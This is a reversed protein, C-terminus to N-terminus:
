GVTSWRTPPRRGDSKYWRYFHADTPRCRAVRLRARPLACALPGRHVARHRLLLSTLARAAPCLLRLPPARERVWQPPEFAAVRAGGRRGRQSQHICVTLRAPHTLAEGFSHGVRCLKVKLALSEGCSFVSGFGGKTLYKLSAYGREELVEQVAAPLTGEHFPPESRRMDRSTASCHRWDASQTRSKDLSAYIERSCRMADRPCWVYFGCGHEAAAEQSAEQAADGQALQWLRV